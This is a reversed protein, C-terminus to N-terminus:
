SFVVPLRPCLLRVHVGSRLAACGAQFGCRRARPAGQLDFQTLRFHVSQYLDYQARVSGADGDLLVYSGGAAIVGRGDAQRSIGKETKVESDSPAIVVNSDYQFDLAAYLSWPKRPKQALGAPPQRVAAGGAYAQAAKGMESQPQERATEALESRAAEPKGQRLLALGEYYHASPRLDPDAEAEKLYTQAAADEGLRYLTLGLFYAATFRETGQEYAREIWIRAPAYQGANFYAIGLDLAAHPLTPNLKLSQDIDQIAAAFLGEHGRALGRYYLALADRPDAQVAEGFLRAAQAWQAGDYAILGRAYLTQSRVDARAPLSSLMLVSALIVQIVGRANGGPVWM